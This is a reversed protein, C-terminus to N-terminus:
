CAGGGGGGVLVCLKPSMSQWASCLWKKAFTELGEHVTGFIMMLCDLNTGVEIFTAIISHKLNLKCYPYDLIENLPRRAAYFTLLLRQAHSVM